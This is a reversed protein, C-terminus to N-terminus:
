SKSELGDVDEMMKDKDTESVNAKQEVKQEKLRFHTYAIIGSIIFSLHINTYSILM